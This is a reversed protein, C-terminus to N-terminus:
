LLTIVAFFLLRRTSSMRDGRGARSIEREASPPIDGCANVPRPIPSGPLLIPLRSYIARGPLQKRPTFGIKTYCPPSPSNQSQVRVKKFHNGSHSFPTPAWGFSFTARATDGPERGLKRPSVLERSTRGVGSRSVTHGRRWCASRRPNRAA